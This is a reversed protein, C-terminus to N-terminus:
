LRELLARAAPAEPFASAAGLLRTLLVKSEAKQGEDALIQALHYTVVPDEPLAKHAARLNDQAAKRDGLRYQVWGLTDLATPDGSASAMTALGLAEQLGGTTVGERSVLLYALNNAAPRLEPHRALLKRYIAEPEEHQGDQQLLQGLLLSETVSDPNKSLASRSVSIAVGLQGTAAYLSALRVSPTSWEPARAQAERFAAEAGCTDGARMAARGWLDAALPDKTRAGARDKAWSVAAAPHGAAFEVAVLGEAGGQADPNVVLVDEFVKKAGGWDKRAARLSGLRLMAPVKVNDMASAQLFYTEAEAYRERRAEVEGMALLLEPPTVGKSEGGRLVRIAEDQQGQREFHAALELRVAISRPKRALFSRLGEVGSHHSEKAFQARAMLVTVREDDPADKIAIRFEGLAEEFREMTMLIRGRSAHGRADAPNQRLAEDVNKLAEDRDGRHRKIESLRLRADVGAPGAAPDAALETLVKEAATMDGAAAEVAALALRLKPTQGQPATTLMARAESTKGGRMIYEVLRLRAEESGPDATLLDRLIGEVRVRDGMREYLSALLVMVGRNGPELSKL